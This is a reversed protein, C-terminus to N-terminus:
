LRQIIYLFTPFRSLVKLRHFDFLRERSPSSFTLPSFYVTGKPRTFTQSDRILELISPYHNAPLNEDMIFNGTMEMNHCQRNIEQMRLFAKRVDSSRIPKGLRDLTEQDASELGINIHTLCPVKNLREFLSDPANLLSGVSGFLFVRNERCYSEKFRFTTYAQEAAKILHNEGALLADHDGLFVANYNLLDNGLYQALLEGTAAIEKEPLAIFPLHNKVKCFRCKYLCGRSIPLPIVNYDVHRADPPLVSISGGIM